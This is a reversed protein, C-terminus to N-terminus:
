ATALYASPTPTAAFQNKIAVVSASISAIATLVPALDVAAPSALAAVATKIETVDAQLAIVQDELTAM